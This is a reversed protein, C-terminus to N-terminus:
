MAAILPVGWVALFACIVAFGWLSVRTSKDIIALLMLLVTVIALIGRLIDEGM